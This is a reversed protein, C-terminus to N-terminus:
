PRVTATWWDHSVSAAGVHATASVAYRDVAGPYSWGGAVRGADISVGSATLEGPTVPNEFRVESRPRRASM